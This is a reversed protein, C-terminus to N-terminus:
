LLFPVQKPTQRYIKRDAICVIKNKLDLDPLSKKLIEELAASRLTELPSKLLSEPVQAGALVRHVDCNKIGITRVHLCEIDGSLHEEVDKIYTMAGVTDWPNLYNPFISNELDEFLTEHLDRSSLSTTLGLVLGGPVFM